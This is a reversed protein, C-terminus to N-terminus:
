AYNSIIGLITAVGEKIKDRAKHSKNFDDSNVRFRDRTLDFLNDVYQMLNNQLDKINKFHAIAEQETM